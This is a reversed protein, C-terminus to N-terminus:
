TIQRYQLAESIHSADIDPAGELDAITRAAKIIKFYSRATLNLGDAAASLLQRVAPSLALQVTVQRSSLLANNKLSSKYRNTQSLRASNISIIADNHQKKLKKSITLLQNNPVRSMSIVMDIRDLLPGSLRKPLRPNANLLVYM